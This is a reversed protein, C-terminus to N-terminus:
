PTKRYTLLFNSLKQSVDGEGDIIKKNSSQSHARVERSSWYNPTIHHWGKHHTGNSTLLERFEESVFQSGNDSVIQNPLGFRAFIPRLEEIIRKVTISQMPVVEPWKYYSDMLILLDWLISTYENGHDQQPHSLTAPEERHHKQCEDCQEVTQEISKNIGPWWVYSRALAKMRIM